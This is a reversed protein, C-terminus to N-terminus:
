RAAAPTRTQAPRNAALGIAREFAAEWPSAHRDITQTKAWRLARRALRRRRRPNLILHEIADLWEGDRVLTGGQKEGLGAYPALPSALWAAGGAAYEKLKVNSRARNFPSDVLPAIGIDIRSVTKLLDDFHVRPVHQYRESRLDLKVGVTVVSLSDHRELLRAITESIGLPAVDVAHEVGAIWGVVVGDHKSRHGFCEMGADLYNEIVVVNGIGSRQYKEAIVPSPTTVLDAKRAQAALRAARKAFTQRSRLRSVGDIADLEGLDDDNDVSIAVGRMALAELDANREERRFCHVLDCGLLHRMPVDLDVYDPWVVTHGRAQLARMPFIVRYRSNAVAPDLIFGLRMHSRHGM